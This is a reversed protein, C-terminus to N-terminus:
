VMTADIMGSGSGDDTGDAFRQSLGSVDDLPQPPQGYLGDADGHNSPADRAELAWEEGLRRVEEDLAMATPEALGPFRAVEPNGAVILSDSADELVLKLTAAALPDLPEIALAQVTLGATTSWACRM